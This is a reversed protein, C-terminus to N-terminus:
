LFLLIQPGDLYRCVRGTDTNEIQRQWNGRSYASFDLCLDRMDYGLRYKLIVLRYSAKNTVWCFAAHGSIHRWGTELTGNPFHFEFIHCFLFRTTSASWKRCEDFKEVGTKNHKKEGRSRVSSVSRVRWRERRTNTGPYLTHLHKHFKLCKLKTHLSFYFFLLFMLSIHQRRGFLMPEEQFLVCYIGFKM